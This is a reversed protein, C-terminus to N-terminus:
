HKTNFIQPNTRTFILSKDDELTTGFSRDSLAMLFRELDGRNNVLTSINNFSESNLDNYEMSSFGIMTSQNKDDIELAGTLKINRERCKLVLAELEKKVDYNM